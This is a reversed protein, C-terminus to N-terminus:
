LPQYQEVNMDDFTAMRHYVTLGMDLVSLAAIAGTGEGLCMECCLMPKLGLEDLILQGAPEKSVHSAIMYDRTLPKLKVALLAAVSSIFGDILVPIRYIAGGLFLGTMGAIDYGGVKVLIDMPDERDPMLNGLAEKIVYIKRQLGEDSLGAGKGTMREAPQSLLAAAVASSTTTNGIGMEGTALIDYGQAKLCGAIEIGVLVARLAEERTMAPGKAFNRTGRRVKRQLLTRPLLEGEEKPVGELLSGETAMGIDVPFVDTGAAEAMVTVTTSGVAMNEAVIATVESGTQTVGEEIVGNDACMAVLARKKLNVRSSGSIGAIKAVNNELLGLSKLPKALSDWREQTDRAADENVPGVSRLLEDLRAALKGEMTMEGDM